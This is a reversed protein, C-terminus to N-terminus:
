IDPTFPPCGNHCETGSSLQQVQLLAIVLTLELKEVITDYRWHTEKCTRKLFVSEDFEYSELVGKVPENLFVKKSYGRECSLEGLGGEDCPKTCDVHYASEKLDGSHGKNNGHLCVPISFSFDVKVTCDNYTNKIVKCPEPCADSSATAIPTAYGINKEVYGEVFLFKNTVHCQTLFVRRHIHKIDEFGEKIFVSDMLCKTVDIIAVKVPVRVQGIESPGCYVNRHVAGDTVDVYIDSACAESPLKYECKNSM